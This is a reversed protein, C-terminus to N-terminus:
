LPAVIGNKNKSAVMTEFFDKFKWKYGQTYDQKLMFSDYDYM